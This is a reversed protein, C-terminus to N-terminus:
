HSKKVPKRTVALPTPYASQVPLVSTGGRDLYSQILAEAIYHNSAIQPNQKVDLLRPDLEFARKYSKVAATMKGRSQFAAGLNYHALAYAPDDDIAHGYAWKARTFEGQSLLVVGLNNWVIALHPDIELASRYKAEAQQLRGRTALQNGLENLLFANKPDRAVKDALTEVGVPYATIPAEIPLTRVQKKPSAQSKPTPAPLPTPEPGPPIPPVPPPAPTPTASPGPSPTPIPPPQPPTPSPSPTASPEQALVGPAGSLTTSLLVASVALAVWRTAPCGAL